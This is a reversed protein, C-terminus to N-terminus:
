VKYFCYGKDNHIIKTVVDKSSQDGSWLYMVYKVFNRYSDGTLTLEVPKGSYIDVASVNKVGSSLEKHDTIRVKM